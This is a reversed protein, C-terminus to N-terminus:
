NVLSHVHPRPDKVSKFRKKGNEKELFDLRRYLASNEQHLDMKSGYALVAMGMMGLLGGGLFAILVYGLM